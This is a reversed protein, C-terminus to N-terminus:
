GDNMQRIFPLHYARLQTEHCNGRPSKASRSFMSRRLSAGIVSYDGTVGPPNNRRQGSRM